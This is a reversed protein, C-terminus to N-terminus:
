TFRKYRKHHIRAHALVCVCTYKAIVRYLSMSTHAYVIQTQSRAYTQRHVTLCTTWATCHSRQQVDLIRASWLYTTDTSDICTFPSLSSLPPSLSAHTCTVPTNLLYSNLQQVLFPVYLWTFLLNWWYCVTFSYLQLNQRNNSHELVSYLWYVRLLQMWSKHETIIQTFLANAHM